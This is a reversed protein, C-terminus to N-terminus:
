SVSWLVKGKEEIEKYVSGFENKYFDYEEKTPTLIDKAFKLDKLLSRVARKKETKTSSGSNIICIDLDSNEDPNGYVYSGFLIIKEPNLSKLRTVLERKLYEIDINKSKM